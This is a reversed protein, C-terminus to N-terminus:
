AEDNGEDATVEELVEARAAEAQKIIGHKIEDTLQSYKMNERWYVNNERVEARLKRNERANERLAEAVADLKDMVVKTMGEIATTVNKLKDEVAKKINGATESLSTSQTEIGIKAKKNSRSVLFTLVGLIISYIAQAISGANALLKQQVGAVIENFFQGWEMVADVGDGAFCPITMILCLVAATLMIATIRKM